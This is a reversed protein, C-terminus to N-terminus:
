LPWLLRVLPIWMAVCLETLPIVALDSGAHTQGVTCPCGHWRPAGDGLTDARALWTRANLRCLSSSLCWWNGDGRRPLDRYYRLPRYGGCWTVARQWWISESGCGTERNVDADSCASIVWSTCAPRPLSWACMAGSHRFGGDPENVCNASGPLRSTRRGAARPYPQAGVHLATAAVGQRCRQEWIYHSQYARCRHLGERGGGRMPYAHVSNVSQHHLLLKKRLSNM